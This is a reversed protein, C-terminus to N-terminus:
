GLTHLTKTTVTVGVALALRAKVVSPYLITLTRVFEMNAAFSDADTNLLDNSWVFVQHYRDLLAFQLPAAM